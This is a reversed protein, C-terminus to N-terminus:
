LKASTLNINRSFGMLLTPRFMLTQCCRRRHRHDTAGMNTPHLPQGITIRQDTFAALPAYKFHRRVSIHHPFKYIFYRSGIQIETLDIPYEACGPVQWVVWFQSIAQGAHRM